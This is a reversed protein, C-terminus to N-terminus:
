NNPSWKLHNGFLREELTKHTKTLQERMRELRIETTKIMEDQKLKM